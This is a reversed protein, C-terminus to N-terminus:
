YGWVIEGGAFVRAAQEMARFARVGLGTVQYLRRAPGDGLSVDELRSEVYGKDSMRSLTVYVTGRKLMTSRQVMELGYMEGNAILLRLVEAEKASLKPINMSWAYVKYSQDDLIM